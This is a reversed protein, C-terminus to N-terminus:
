KQCFYQTISLAIESNCDCQVEEGDPNQLTQKYYSGSGGCCPCKKDLIARIKGVEIKELLNICFQLAKEFEPRDAEYFKVSAQIEELTELLEGLKEKNM